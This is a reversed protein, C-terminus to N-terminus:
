LALRMVIDEDAHDGVMFQYPGVEVFGYRTYFRRARHNDTFVSLYLEDAGRRRAEALVWAMLVPALGEGQWPKLIYFQRLELPTGRPTLPLTPPGVKAYGILAKEGEIVRVSYISSALQERWNAQEHTVLFAALNDPSYLHGFTETFSRKGLESLAAADDLTADRFAPM